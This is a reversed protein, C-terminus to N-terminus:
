RLNYGDNTNQMRAVINNSYKYGDNTNQKRVM